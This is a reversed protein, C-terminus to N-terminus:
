IKDMLKAHLVVRKKNYSDLCSSLTLVTDSSDVDLKFDFISRSKITKVFESFEAETAFETNIYYDEPEISYVSFVQYYYTYKDTIFIIEKNNEKEYWSKNLIDKLTGFMSGNKMKHGYIVINKDTGDFKNHYDAFIWGAVNYKKELNHTLYYSNNIGKVVPYDIRTNDVKIYGVVESNIKKLSEFDINYKPKTDPLEIVDVSSAVEKMIKTNENLDIEEEFIKYCSFIIGAICILIMILRIIKKM